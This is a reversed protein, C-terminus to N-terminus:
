NSNLSSDLQNQNKLSAVKGAQKKYGQNKVQKGVVRKQNIVVSFLLLSTIINKKIRLKEFIWIFKDTMSIISFTQLFSTCFIWDMNWLCLQINRLNPLFPFLNSIWLCTQPKVKSSGYYKYTQTIMLDLCTFFRISSRFRNCHLKSM